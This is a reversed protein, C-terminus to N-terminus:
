GVVPLARPHVFHALCNSVYTCVPAGSEDRDGGSRSMHVITGHDSYVTFSDMLRIALYLGRGGETLASPPRDYRIARPDFGKGSDRVTVAVQEGDRSVHLGISRGSKGHSLANTVVEDLALLVDDCVEQPLAGAIFSSVARRAESPATATSPVFRELYTRVRGSGAVARRQAVV